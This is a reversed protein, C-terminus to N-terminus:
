YLHHQERGLNRSGQYVSKPGCLLLDDTIEIFEGLKDSLSTRSQKRIPPLLNLLEGGRLLEIRRREVVVDRM